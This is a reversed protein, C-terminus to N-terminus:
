GPTLNFLAKEIVGFGHFLGVSPVYVGSRQPNFYRMEGTNVGGVDILVILLRDM